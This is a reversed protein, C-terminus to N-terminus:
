YALTADARLDSDNSASIHGAVWRRANPVVGVAAATGALLLFANRVRHSRKRRARDSARELDDVLAQLNKRLKKDAAVRSSFNNASADQRLRDTARAGHDVASRVHSRLRRDQVLDDSYAVAERVADRVKEMRSQRTRGLM